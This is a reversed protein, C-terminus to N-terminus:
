QISYFSSPYFPMEAAHPLAGSTVMEVAYLLAGSASVRPLTQLIAEDTMLIGLVAESAFTEDTM